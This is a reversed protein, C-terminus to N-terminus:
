KQSKLRSRSVSLQISHLGPVVPFKLSLAIQANDDNRDFLRPCRLSQAMTCMFLTGSFPPTPAQINNCRYKYVHPQAPVAPACCRCPIFLSDMLNLPLFKDVHKHTRLLQSQPASGQIPIPLKFGRRKLSVRM